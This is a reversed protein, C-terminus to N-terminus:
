KVKIPIGRWSLSPSTLPQMMDSLSISALAAYLLKNVVKWNDKITCFSDLSCTSEQGCCETIAPDGELAAIVHAVTIEKAPHALQYGGQSGRFAQILKAEALIKLIKSVTAPTLHVQQSISAASMIKDPYRALYGLIITAYDTLKSIRLM